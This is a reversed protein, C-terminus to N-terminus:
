LYFNCSIKVEGWKISWQNLNCDEGQWFILCPSLMCGFFETPVNGLTKNVTIKELFNAIYQLTFGFLSMQTRVRIVDIFKVQNPFLSKASTIQNYFELHYWEPNRTPELNLLAHGLLLCFLFYGLSGSPFAMHLYPLLFLLLTDGLWPIVLTVLPQQLYFLPM